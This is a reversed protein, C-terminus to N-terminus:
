TSLSNAVHQQQRQNPRKRDPSCARKNEVSDSPQMIKTDEEIINKMNEAITQRNMDSARRLLRAQQLPNSPLEISTSSQHQDVEDNSHKLQLTELLVDKTEATIQEVISRQRHPRYVKAKKLQGRKLMQEYSQVDKMSLVEDRDLDFEKFKEMWPEIDSQDIKGALQLMHLIYQASTVESKTGRSVADILEKSPEIADLIQQLEAEDLHRKFSAIKEFAVATISIAILIYFINFWISSPKSLLLDGYGVSTSTYTSFFFGDLFSWGENLSFVMAGFINVLFLIFIWMLCNLVSRVIVQLRNLRKLKKKNYRDRMSVVVMTTVDGIVSFTLLIGSFIYFISFVKGESTKPSINGYGLTSITQTIFYVSDRFTWGEINEYVLVGIVYFLFFRLVKQMWPRNIYLTELLSSGIFKRDNQLQEDTLEHINLDIDVRETLFDTFHHIKNNVIASLRRRVGNNENSEIDSQDTANQSISYKRSRQQLASVPRRGTNYYM